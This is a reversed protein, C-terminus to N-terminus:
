EPANQEAGKKREKWDIYNATQLAMSARGIEDMNTRIFEKVNDHVFLGDQGKLPTSPVIGLSYDEELIINKMAKILCGRYIKQNQEQYESEPVQGKILKNWVDIHDRDQLFQKLALNYQEEIGFRDCAEKRIQERTTPQQAFRAEARCNPIFEEVWQRFAPRYAMRRRDNSKLAKPDGSFAVAESTGPESDQDEVEKPPVYFMRCTAIYEFMDDLSSFCTGWKEKDLGLFDLTEQPDSTLFIKARKKNEHEIEPIRISMNVEDATLGFPRIISGLISWMDGHAHKFVRWNIDEVSACLRIDVQIFQERGEINDEVPPFDSPWPVAVHASAQGKEFIVAKGGMAEAMAALAVREPSRSPDVATIEGKDKAGAVIIDIDGHDAKGPAETPSAVHCYLERLTDHLIDRMHYYVGPPMRPTYLSNPGSSFILGGM